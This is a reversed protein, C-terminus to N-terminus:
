NYQAGRDRFEQLLQDMRDLQKLMIERQEKAIPDENLGALTAQRWVSVFDQGFQAPPGIEQRMSRMALDMGKAIDDAFSGAGADPKAGPLVGPLNEGRDRRPPGPRGEVDGRRRPRRDPAAPGKTEEGGGTLGLERAIGPLSPLTLARMVDRLSLGFEGLMSNINPLTGYTLEDFGIGLAEAASAVDEFARFTGVGVDAITEMVPIMKGMAELMPGQLVKAVAFTVGSFVLMAPLMLGALATTILSTMKLFTGFGSTTASLTQALAALPALPAVVQLAFSRLGGALADGLPNAPRGVTPQPRPPPQGGSGPGGRGARAAAALAATNAGVAGTQASIHRTLSAVAATLAAAQLDPPLAAGRDASPPSAQAPVPTGQM